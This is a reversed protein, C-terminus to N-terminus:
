TLLRTDSPNRLADEWAERDKDDAADANDESLKYFDPALTIPVEVLVVFFPLFLEPDRNM